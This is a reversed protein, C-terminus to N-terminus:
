VIDFKCLYFYNRHRTRSNKMEEDVVKVEDHELSLIKDDKKNVISDIKKKDTKNGDSGNDRDIKNQETNESQAGEIEKVKGMIVVLQRVDDQSQM